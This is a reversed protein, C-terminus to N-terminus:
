LCLSSNLRQLSVFCMLACPMDLLIENDALLPSVKPHEFVYFISSELVDIKDIGFASYCNAM